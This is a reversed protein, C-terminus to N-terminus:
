ESVKFKFRVMYTIRNDQLLSVSPTFLQSNFYKPLYDTILPKLLKRRDSTQWFFPVAKYVHFEIKCEVSQESLRRLSVTVPYNVENHTIYLNLGHFCRVWGEKLENIKDATMSSEVHKYIALSQDAMIVGIDDLYHKIRKTLKVEFMNLDKFQHNAIYM